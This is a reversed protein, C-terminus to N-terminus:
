FVDKDSGESWGIKQLTELFHRNSSLEPWEIAELAAVSRERVIRWNELQFIESTFCQSEDPTLEDLTDSIGRLALLLEPRAHGAILELFKQYAAGFDLTLDCYACDPIEAAQQDAQLSLSVLADGLAYLALLERTDTHYDWEWILNSFGNGM